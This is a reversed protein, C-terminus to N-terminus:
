FKQQSRCLLTCLNYSNWVCTRPIVVLSIRVYWMGGADTGGDDDGHTLLM